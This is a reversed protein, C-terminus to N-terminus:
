SSLAAPGPKLPADPHENCGVVTLLMGPSAANKTDGM